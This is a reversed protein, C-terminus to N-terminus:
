DYEKDEETNIFNGNDDVNRWEDCEDDYKREYITVGPNNKRVSKINCSPSLNMINFRFGSEERNPNFFNDCEDILNLAQQAAWEGILESLKPTKEYGRYGPSGETPTIYKDKTGGDRLYRRVTDMDTHFENRIRYAIIYDEIIDETEKQSLYFYDYWYKDKDSENLKKLENLTISPQARMYMENLCEEIAREIVDKRTM